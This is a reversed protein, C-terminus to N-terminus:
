IVEKIKLMEGYHTKIYDSLETPMDVREEIYPSENLERYWEMLGYALYYSIYSISCGYRVYEIIDSLPDSWEPCFWKKIQEKGKYHKFVFDYDENHFIKIVIGDKDILKGCYINNM